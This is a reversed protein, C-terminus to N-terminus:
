SYFCLVCLEIRVDLLQQLVHAGVRGASLESEAGGRREETLVELAEDRGAEQLDGLRLTEGLM